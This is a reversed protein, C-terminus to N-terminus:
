SSSRTRAARASASAASALVLRREERRHERESALDVIDGERSIGQGYLIDFEVERFPPAMKNKVVKM